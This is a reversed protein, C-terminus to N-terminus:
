LQLNKLQSILQDIEEHRKPLSFSEAANSRLNEAKIDKGNKGLFNLSLRWALDSKSYSPLFDAQILQEFLYALLRESLNWQIKQRPGPNTIQRFVAPNTTLEIGDLQQLKGLLWSLEKQPHKGKWTFHQRTKLTTNNRAKALLEKRCWTYVRLIVEPEHIGLLYDELLDGVRRKKYLPSDQGYLIEQIEQHIRELEKQSVGLSQALKKRAKKQPHLHIIAELETIKRQLILDKLHPVKSIQHQLAEISQEFGSEIISRYREEASRLFPSEYTNMAISTMQEQGLYSM